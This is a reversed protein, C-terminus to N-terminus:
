YDGFSFGVGFDVTLYRTDKEIECCRMMVTLPFRWINMVFGAEAQIGKFESEFIDRTVTAQIGGGVMFDIFGPMLNFVVGTSMGPDVYTKKEFEEPNDELPTSIDRIEAMMKLYWRVYHKGIDSFMLGHGNRVPNFMYNLSWLRRSRTACYGYKEDYYRNFYMGLGASFDVVQNSLGTRNIQLGGSAFINRYYFMLGAELELGVDLDDDHSQKYFMPGLGMYVSMWPLIEYSPGLSIIYMPDKKADPDLDWNVANLQFHNYGGFRKVGIFGSRLGFTEGSVTLQLYRSGTNFMIKEAQKNFIYSREEKGLRVVHLSDDAPMKYTTRGVKKGDIYIKAWSPKSDIIIDYPNNISGNQLVNVKFVKTDTTLIFSGRREISDNQTCELLVADGSFSVNMWEEDTSCTWTDKANILPIVMSGGLSEMVIDDEPVNTKSVHSKQSIDIDTKQDAAMVTVSGYRSIPLPNADCVIVLTDSMKYANIWQDSTNIEWDAINTEIVEMVSDRGAEFTISNDQSKLVARGIDQYVHLVRMIDGSYIEIDAERSERVRNKMCTVYFINNRKYVSLWKPVDNFNWEINNTTIFISDKAGDADFFLTDASIRLTIGATITNGYSSVDGYSVLDVNLVKQEGFGIDVVTAYDYYGTKQILIDNNGRKVKRMMYPTMGCFVGNIMVDAGPPTSTISVYGFLPKLDVNITENKDLRITKNKEALYEDCEVSYTHEGMMLNMSAFGNDGVEKGDIFIKADAPTAVITLNASRMALDLQYVRNKTLQVPMQYELTTGQYKFVLKGKVGSSLIIKYSGDNSDINASGVTLTSSPSYFSIDSLLKHDFGKAVVKIMAWPKGNNDTKRMGDPLIFTHEPGLVRFDDVCLFSDENQANVAVCSLVVLLFLIFRKM